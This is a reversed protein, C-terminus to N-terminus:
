GRAPEFDALSQVAAGTSRVREIVDEDPTMAAVAHVLGRRTRRGRAVQSLRAEVQEATGTLQFRDSLYEQIEPYDDFLRGNVNGVGPTGHHNFDYKALQERLIPQWQKPVGKGDFTSSFSFRATGVARGRQSIRAADAAAQDPAVFTTVFAWIRM